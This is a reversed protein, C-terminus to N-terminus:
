TTVSCTWCVTGTRRRLLNAELALRDGVGVAVPRRRARLDGLFLVLDHQVLLLKYNLLADNGFLTHTQGLVRDGALLLDGLRDALLLDVDVVRASVPLPATLCM